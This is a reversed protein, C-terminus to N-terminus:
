LKLKHNKIEYVALFSETVTMEYYIYTTTIKKVMM